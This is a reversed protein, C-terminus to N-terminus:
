QSFTVALGDSLNIYGSGSGHQDRYYYQFYWTSGGTIEGKGQNAPHHNFDLGFSASGRSNVPAVGNLRHVGRGGAGACRVGNGFPTNVQGGGYFFVGFSSPPAGNVRLTFSGASVSVSGTSSIIAGNGTSNPSATCYNGASTTSALGVLLTTGLLAQIRTFMM